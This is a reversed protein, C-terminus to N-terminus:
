LKKSRYIRDGFLAAGIAGALQPDLSCTMATTGLLAEVRRVVGLNKAIGGTFALAPEFKLREVLDVIRRATAGLYAALVEERACGERLRAAAESRAFVVCTTSVPPPEEAVSLSLPGVRDLTVGVLQAFTEVGRGTGAACKDNMQFGVVKGRGDCRIAKCDQGGVDILTRLGDGYLFHGGRAHCHIESMSKHAFPVHGRGYGTGVVVRIDGLSVGTGDLALAMAREASGASSAGTRLNSWAYLAGDVLIAAQSSVSGVDVGAVVAAGARWDLDVATGREEPWSWVERASV